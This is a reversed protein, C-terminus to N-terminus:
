WLRNKNVKFWHATQAVKYEDALQQLTKTTRVQTEDTRDKLFRRTLPILVLTGVVICIIGIPTFSFFTLPAYGATTLADRVILNPPTGILTLMGGMSGAFALPMLLRSSSIGAGRAMSVVIPLMLAVTGTNSVFAGVVSTTIMLLVFLRTESKGALGMISTGMRKALGTGFIGGGVVFLAAMMIVIPSSFGALAEEPSLVGTLVLALAACVAVLDSRIRGSVFLIASIALIILTYLM